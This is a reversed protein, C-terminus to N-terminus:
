GLRPVIMQLPQFAIVTILCTMALNGLDSCRTQHWLVAAIPSLTFSGWWLCGRQTSLFMCCEYSVLHAMNSSESTLQVSRQLSKRWQYMHELQFIIHATHNHAWSERKHPINKIHWITTPTWCLRSRQGGRRIVLVDELSIIVLSCDITWM